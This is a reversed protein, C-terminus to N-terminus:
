ILLLNILSQSSTAPSPSCSFLVPLKHLISLFHFAKVFKFYVFIYNNHVEAVLLLLKRACKVRPLTGAQINAKIVPGYYPMPFHMLLKKWRVPRSAAFVFFDM